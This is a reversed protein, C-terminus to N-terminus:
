PEEDVKKEDTLGTHERLRALEARIEDMDDPLQKSAEVRRQRAKMSDVVKTKGDRKLWWFISYAIGLGFLVVLFSGLTTFGKSEQEFCASLGFFFLPVLFFAVIIYALPFGRWVRTTKGLTRAMNLPIERMRPIPYWVLIGSINFFLHALATQMATIKDSVLAAMIATFTTGINAGLTLPYMQELQIVGMGVLPTLTSTTISSSQVLITLGMGILIALYGNINTAKYIIRTSTGLLMKQLMSVLGVLCVCLIVLSLFLCVGGAVKDDEQSAGNQFFAPCNGSGKDCVILGWNGKCNDYDVIGDTCNVPYYDPCTVEGDSTSIDKILDKNAKIVKATLPGVIKKIPGKWKSGKEFANEPLMARTLYFLYGTAAEIPLFIIVTLFNFMDHVTAGAFARELEDGNGLHGMAVITNTVSTGINAGMIMYISQRVGVSGAGVLSVVISTTTSSSQLLVTGLIGIMLAAVPNTNQGLVEGATCGGVVKAANGLLDLGFLFFYLFFLIVCLGIFIKGWEAPSHICCSKVVEGWTADGIDDPSEESFDKDGFHTSGTKREKRSRVEDEVQQPFSSFSKFPPSADFFPM